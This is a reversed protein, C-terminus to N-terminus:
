SKARQIRDPSPADVSANDLVTSPTNLAIQEEQMLTRFQERDESAIAYEITIIIPGVHDGPVVPFITCTM